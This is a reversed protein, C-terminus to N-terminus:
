SGINRLPEEFWIKKKALKHALERTNLLPTINWVWQQLFILMTKKKLVMLQSRVGSAM